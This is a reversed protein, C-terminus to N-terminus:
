LFPCSSGRAESTGNSERICPVYYIVSGKFFLDQQTMQSIIYKNMIVTHKNM